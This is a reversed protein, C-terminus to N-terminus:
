PTTNVASVATTVSHTTTASVEAVGAAVTVTVTATATTLVASPTPTAPSLPTPSSPSPLEKLFATIAAEDAPTNDTREKLWTQVQRVMAGIAPGAATPHVTRVLAGINVGPTPKTVRKVANLSWKKMEAVVGRLEVKEEDTADRWETIDNSDRAHGEPAFALTIHPITNASKVAACQVKVAYALSSRGVAVVSLAVETGLSVGAAPHLAGMNITM